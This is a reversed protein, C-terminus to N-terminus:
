SLGYKYLSWDGSWSRRLKHIGFYPLTENAAIACYSMSKQSLVNLGLSPDAFNFLSETVPLTAQIKVGSDAGGSVLHTFGSAKWLQTIIVCDHNWSMGARLKDSLEKGLKILQIQDFGIKFGRFALASAKSFMVDITPNGGGVDLNGQVSVAGATAYSEAIEHQFGVSLPEIGFESVNGLWEFRCRKGNYTGYDGLTLQQNLPFNLYRDLEDRVERIARERWRTTREAGM